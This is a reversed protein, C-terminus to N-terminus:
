CKGSLWLTLVAKEPFQKYEIRLISKVAEIKVLMKLFLKDGSLRILESRRTM